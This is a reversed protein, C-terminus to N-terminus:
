FRGVKKSIHYHHHYHCYFRYHCYHCNDWKQGLLPWCFYWIVWTFNVEPKFIEDSFKTQFKLNAKSVGKGKGQHITEGQSSEGRVEWSILWAGLSCSLCGCFGDFCVIACNMFYKREKIVWNQTKAFWGATPSNAPHNAHSNATSTPRLLMHCTVPSECVQCTVYSIHCM